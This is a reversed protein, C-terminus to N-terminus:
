FIRASRRRSASSIQTISQEGSPWWGGTPRACREPTHLLGHADYQGRTRRAGVVLWAPWPASGATQRFASRSSFNAAFRLWRGRCRRSPRLARRSARATEAPRRRRSPRAIRREFVQEDVVAGAHHGAAGPDDSRVGIASLIAPVPEDRSAVRRFLFRQKVWMEHRRTGPSLCMALSTSFGQGPM